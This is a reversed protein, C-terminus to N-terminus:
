SLRCPKMQQLGISPGSSAEWDTGPLFLLKAYNTTGRQAEPSQLWDLSYLKHNKQGGLRLIWGSTTVRSEHPIIARKQAHM